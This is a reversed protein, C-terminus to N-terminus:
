LKTGPPTSKPPTDNPTELDRYLRALEVLLPELKAYYQDEDTTEDKSQRLAAIAQELEDRRGRVEPPMNLERSSRVLHLRHALAGDSEAGKKAARVARHGQFWDAPTGLGDGNDDVLATETALRGESEYFESTRRSAMLFAELLSTQEDKDLDATSGAMAASLYDGFRAYNLEFGSKTATVVVRNAASLRNIFPASSSACNVVAVPRKFGDLWENLEAATVDPGHLNFKAKRGDFTGHGILVIWFPASAQRPEDQLMTRLRDRDTTEATEEHGIRVIKGGGAEAAQEWREAWDEFSQGYEPAGPEGVVVLVTPQDPAAAGMLLTAIFVLLLHYKRPQRCLM